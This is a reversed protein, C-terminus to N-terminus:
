NLRKINTLFEEYFQELGEATLTNLSFAICVANLAADKNQYFRAERLVWQLRKQFEVNFRAVEHFLDVHDHVSRLDVQRRILATTLVMHMYADPDFNAHYYKLLFKFQNFFSCSSNLMAYVLVSFCVKQATEHYQIKYKGKEIEIAVDDFSFIDSFYLIIPALSELLNCSCTKNVVRCDGCGHGPYPISCEATSSTTM